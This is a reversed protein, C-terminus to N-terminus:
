FGAKAITVTSSSLTATYLTVGDPDVEAGATTVATGAVKFGKYNVDPVFYVVAATVGTKFDLTVVPENAIKNGVDGSGTVAFVGIDSAEIATVSTGALKMMTGILTLLDTKQVPVIRKNNIM